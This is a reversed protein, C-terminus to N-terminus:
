DSVRDAIASLDDKIDDLEEGTAVRDALDAVSSTLSSVSEALDAVSGTLTAVDSAVTFGYWLSSASTIISVLVLVVIAMEM